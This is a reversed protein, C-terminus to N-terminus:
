NRAGGRKSYGLIIRSMLFALRVELVSRDSCGSKSWSDVAGLCAPNALRRWSRPQTGMGPSSGCEIPDMCHAASMTLLQNEPANPRNRVPFRARM